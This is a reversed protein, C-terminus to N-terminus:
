SRKKGRLLGAFAYESLSDPIPTVAALLTAPDAGLCVSIPFREGPHAHQWAQFDLAGGRHSLWRMIVKNKAIVQQRYIGLNQRAQLPGKTVVLGWTILPGADGPWCTQIPLQYLDVEDGEVGLKQCSAKNTVKPKMSLVKKYIPWMQWADSIGYPPTPNKLEALVVGIERLASISEAGMALAVRDATGFLNTLVPIDHGLPKEFLLAPGGDSLVRRSVETMELRCDISTSIFKLLGRQELCGLFERLDSYQM